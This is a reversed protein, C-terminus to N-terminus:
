NADEYKCGTPDSQYSKKVFRVARASALGRCSTIFPPLLRALCPGPCYDGYIMQNASGPLYRSSLYTSSHNFNDDDVTPAVSYTLRMNPQHVNEGLYFLRAYEGPLIAGVDYYWGSDEDFRVSLDTVEHPYVDFEWSNALGDQNQDVIAIAETSGADYLTNNMCIKDMLNIFDVPTPESIDKYGLGFANEETGVMGRYILFLHVDTAWLPLALPLDFALRAPTGNVIIDGENTPIQQEAVIQYFTSFTTAGPPDTFQDELGQRYKVVLFVTGDTMGDAISRANLIIKNFGQAGPNDMYKEPYKPDSPEYYPHKDTFAYYGEKPLSIEIVPVKIKAAAVAHTEERGMKGKMVLTFEGPTQADEPLAFLKLLGSEGGAPVTTYIATMNFIEEETPNIQDQWPRNDVDKVPVLENNLNEYNLEYLGEVDEDMPNVIRCGDIDVTLKIEGRFFYDLLDASFGIARPILKEAYEEHCASDLWLPLLEYGIEPFYEERFHYAFSVIALHNIQEGFHGNTSSLYKRDFHYITAPPHDLVITCHEKKPFPSDETFMSFASLFNYNTYEALGLTDMGNGSYGSDLQDTDWFDTLFPDSINSSIAASQFWPKDDNHRKVYLEFDNGFWQWPLDLAPCVLLHGPSFDNRVHGPVAMDQLLHLEHGVALFCDRMSRVRAAEDVAIKEGKFNKGTLFTYFYERASDWDWANVERITINTISPNIGEYGTAWTLNSCIQSSPYQGYGFGWCWIDTLWWTDTLRASYWNKALPNHFHNSARCAPDDERKAGHAIEKTVYKGNLLTGPKNPDQSETFGLNNQLYADLGSSLVAHSTINPHTVEDNWAFGKIPFLITVVLIVFINKKM